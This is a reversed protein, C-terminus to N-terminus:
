TKGNSEITLFYIGPLLSNLNASSIEPENQTFLVPIEKGSVDYLKFSANASAIVQIHNSFPNPYVVIVPELSENEELLAVM